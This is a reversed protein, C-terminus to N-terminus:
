QRGKCNIIAIETTVIEPKIHESTAKLITYKVQDSVPIKLFGETHYACRDDKVTVRRGFIFGTAPKLPTFDPQKM